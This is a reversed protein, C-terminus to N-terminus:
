RCSRCHGLPAHLCVFHACFLSAAPACTSSCSAPQLAFGRPLTRFACHASFLFRSAGSALTFLTLLQANRIRSPTHPDRRRLRFRHLICFISVIRCRQAAACFSARSVTQLASYQSWKQFLFFVIYVSMSFRSAMGPLSVVLSSCPAWDRPCPAMPLLLGCRSFLLIM